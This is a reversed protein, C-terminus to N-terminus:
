ESLIDADPIVPSRKSKLRFLDEHLRRRRTEIEAIHREIPEITKLEIAYAKALIAGEVLGREALGDLGMAREGANDCVLAAALEKARESPYRAFRDDDIEKAAIDLFKQRLLDDRLRRYRHAEWELDVLNEALAMEYPSAPEFDLLLAQRLDEYATEDEGPLLRVRPILDVLEEASKPVVAKEM